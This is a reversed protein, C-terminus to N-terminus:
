GQDSLELKLEALFRRIRKANQGLDSRGLRSKSRVDVRAGNETPTIRVVMDDKFGYLLSTDTAEIRMDQESADVIELGMKAIVKDAAEFVKAAPLTVMLPQLDPYAEKQQAAVEPGDYVVSHDGPGRISEVVVFKPPDEVDTTIDHIYPHADLTKKWSLPVYVTIAAVLVGIVGMVVMARTKRSFALGIVSLVLAFIAAYFSVKIILFGTRFHWLDLQYGIGSFVAALACALALIFGIVVLLRAVPRETSSTQANM